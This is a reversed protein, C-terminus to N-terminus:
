CSVVWSCGKSNICNNVEQVSCVSVLNM